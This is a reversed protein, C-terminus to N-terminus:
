DETHLQEIIKEATLWDSEEFGPTFGRAQSLHYAIQEIAKQRKKPHPMIIPKSAARKAAVKKKATPKATSKKAATKKKGASKAAATTKTPRPKAAPKKSNKPQTAGTAGQAPTENDPKTSM